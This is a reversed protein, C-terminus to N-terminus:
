MANTESQPAASPGSELIEALENKTVKGDKTAEMILMVAPPPSTPDVERLMNTLYVYDENSIEVFHDSWIVVSAIVLVVVISCIASIVSTERLLSPRELM